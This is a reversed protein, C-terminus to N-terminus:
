ARGSSTATLDPAELRMTTPWARSEPVLHMRKVGELHPLSSYCACASDGFGNFRYTVEMVRNRDTKRFDAVLHVGANSAHNILWTLITAGVGFMVVRCSTALLRLHWYACNKELLILGIIGHSGFRDDLSALMLEYGPEACLKRLTKESYHVGTANMQSTRLTLEEARPIDEEAASEIRLRLNLSRLFDEDNDEFTSRFEERQEAARYMNRRRSADATVIPSFEPLTPLTLIDDNRYCRVDPLHYSVEARETALDDIFAIANFAFNLKEAIHKISSSKPAWAIQPFVFYDSIGLECVRAWALDRDNKSAISQIIGRSDLVEIVQRTEDAILVNDGELLTGNWLTNDLDWVLCKVFGTHEAM